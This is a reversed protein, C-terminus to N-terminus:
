NDCEQVFCHKRFDFEEGHVTFDVGAVHLLYCYESLREAGVEGDDCVGVIHEETPVPENIDHWGTDSLDPIVLYIYYDGTDWDTWSTLDIKESM